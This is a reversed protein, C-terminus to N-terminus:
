LAAAASAGSALGVFILSWSALRYAAALRRGPTPASRPRRQELAQLWRRLVQARSAPVGDACIERGIGADRRRVQAPDASRDRHLQLELDVLEALDLGADRSESHETM